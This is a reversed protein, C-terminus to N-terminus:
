IQVRPSQEAWREFCSIIAETRALRAGVPHDLCTAPATIAPDYTADAFFPIDYREGTARPLPTDSDYSVAVPRNASPQM